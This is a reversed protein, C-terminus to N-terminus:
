RSHTEKLLISYKSSLSSVEEQKNVNLAFLERKESELTNVADQQSNM